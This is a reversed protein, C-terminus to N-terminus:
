VNPAPPPAPAPVHGCHVGVLAAPPGGAIRHASGRSRLALRTGAWRYVTNREWWRRTGSSRLEFARQTLLHAGARVSCTIGSRIGYEEGYAAFTGADLLRGNAYTYVAIDEETTIHGVDVFLEEGPRGDVNGVRVLGPLYPADTATSVSIVPGSALEVQLRGGNPQVATGSNSRSLTVIDPRGDGDVDALARHLLTPSSASPASAARQPEAGEAAGGIGIVVALGTAV